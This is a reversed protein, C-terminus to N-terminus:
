SGFNLVSFRSDGALPGFMRSVDPNAYALNLDPTPNKNEIGLFTVTNLNGIPNFLENGARPSDYMAGGAMWDNLTGDMYMSVYERNVKKSHEDIAYLADYLNNIEDFYQSVAEYPISALATSLESVLYSTALYGIGTMTYYIAVWVVNALVVSTAIMEMIVALAANIAASIEPGIFISAVIGATVFAYYTIEIALKKDGIAEALPEAYSMFYAYTVEDFYKNPNDLLQPLNNFAVFADFQTKVVTETVDYTWRGADEVADVTENVVKEGIKVAGEVVDVTTDVADEVVDVVSDVVDNFVDTVGSWFSGWGM